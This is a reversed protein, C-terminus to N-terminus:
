RGGSAGRTVGDGGGPVAFSGEVDANESSYVNAKNQQRLPCKSTPRAHRRVLNEVNRVALRVASCSREKHQFARNRASETAVWLLMARSIISRDPRSGFMGGKQSRDWSTDM